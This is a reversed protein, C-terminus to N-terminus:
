QIHVLGQRLVIPQDGSANVITSGPPGSVSGPVILDVGELSVLEESHYPDPGGTRNASTATLIKNSAKALEFAPCPGPIRIGVLNGPGVLPRPLGSKAPLLLTLPGPWYQQALKQAAQPFSAVVKTAAAMDPIIVSIPQTPSRDKIAASKLVATEDMADAALGFLSEYALAVVGGSDIVHIARDIWDQM